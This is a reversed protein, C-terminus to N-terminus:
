TEALSRTAASLDRIDKPDDLPKVPQRGDSSRSSKNMMVPSDSQRSYAVIKIIIRVNMVVIIISPIILTLLFDCTTAITILTYYRTLPTCMSVTKFSINGNTVSSFSYLVLAIIALLTETTKARRRTCLLDKKLPYYVIIYREITFSVVYWVSLFTCVYTMYVICQCWVHRHFVDVHVWSLWIMSLCWLFLM